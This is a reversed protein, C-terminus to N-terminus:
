IYTWILSSWQEQEFQHFWAADTQNTKYLIIEPFPELEVGIQRLRNQKPHWKIFSPRVKVEVKVFQNYKSKYKTTMLETRSQNKFIWGTEVETQLYHKPKSKLKQRDTGNRRRSRNTAEIGVGVKLNLETGAKVRWVLQNAVVIKDRNARNGKQIQENKWSRSRSKTFWDM